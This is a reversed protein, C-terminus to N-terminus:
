MREIGLVSAILSVACRDILTRSIWLDNRIPFRNWDGAVTVVPFAILCDWHEKDIPKADITDVELVMKTLDSTQCSTLHAPVSFLPVAGYDTAAM